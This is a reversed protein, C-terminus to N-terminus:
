TFWQAVWATPAAKGVWYHDIMWQTARGAIAGCVGGVVGKVAAELVVRGWPTPAPEEAATTTLMEDNGPIGRYGMSYNRYTWGLGSLAGIVGFIVTLPM